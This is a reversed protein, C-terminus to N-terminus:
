RSAVSAACKFFIVPADYALRRGHRALAEDIVRRSAPPWPPAATKMMPRIAAACSARAPRRLRRAGEFLVQSLVEFCREAATARAMKSIREYRRCRSRSYYRCAKTSLRRTTARHAPPKRRAALVVTRCIIESARSRGRRERPPVRPKAPQHHQRTRHTDQALQHAAASSPMPMM